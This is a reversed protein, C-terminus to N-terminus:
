VRLYRLLPADLLPPPIQEDRGLHAIVGNVFRVADPADRACFLDFRRVADLLVDGKFVCAAVTEVNGHLLHVNERLVHAAFIGRQGLDAPRLELPDLRPHASGEFLHREVELLEVGLPLLLLAVGEGFVGLLHVFKDGGESVLVRRILRCGELLDFRVHAGRFNHIPEEYAVDTEALRLDCQPRRIQANQCSPLSGQHARAGDKRFLM